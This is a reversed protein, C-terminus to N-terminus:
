NRAVVAFAQQNRVKRVANLFGDFYANTLFREDRKQYKQAKQVLWGGANKGSPGPRGLEHNKITAMSRVDNAVAHNAWSQGDAEGLLYSGEYDQIAKEITM